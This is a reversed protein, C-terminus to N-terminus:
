FPGLETEIAALGKAHSIFWELEKHTLGAANIKQGDKTTILIKRNHRFIFEAVVSPLASWVEPSGLIDVFRESSVDSHGERVLYPLRHKDLLTVFPGFSHDSLHVELLDM